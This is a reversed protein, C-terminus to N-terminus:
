SVAGGRWGGTRSSGVQSSCKTPRPAFAHTLSSHQNVHATHLPPSPAAAPPPLAYPGQYLQREVVQRRVCQPRHPEHDAPRRMLFFANPLLPPPPFASSFICRLKRKCAPFRWRSYLCQMSPMDATRSLALHFCTVCIRDSPPPLHCVSCGSRFRHLLQWADIRLQRGTGLVYGYLQFRFFHNLFRPFARRFPAFICKKMGRLIVNVIV